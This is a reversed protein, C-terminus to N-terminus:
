CQPERSILLPYLWLCVSIM